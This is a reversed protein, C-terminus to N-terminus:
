QRCLRNHDNFAYKDPCLNITPKLRTDTHTHEYTRTYIFADLICAHQNTQQPTSHLMSCYHSRHMSKFPIEKQGEDM